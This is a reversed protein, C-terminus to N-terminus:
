ILLPSKKIAAVQSGSPEGGLCCTLGSYVCDKNLAASLLLTIDSASIAWFTQTSLAYCKFAWFRHKLGAGKAVRNAAQGQVLWKVESFKNGWRNCLPSLLM